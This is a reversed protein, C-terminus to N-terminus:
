KGKEIVGCAIRSGAAGAPDSTYDDPGEHIVIATGGEKFLSDPGGALTALPAYRVGSATGDPGAVINAMDGAHPGDPNKLGHKRGHPNFHGGASKFPPDCAGKEHIHFAHAGPPLGAIGYAISLVEGETLVAYGLTRGDLGALRALATEKEEGAYSVAALFLVALFVPIAYTKM